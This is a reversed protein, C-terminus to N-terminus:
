FNRAIEDLVAEFEKEVEGSKADLAPSLAERMQKAGYDPRKGTTRGISQEVSVGRQRVVTRYGAASRADVDAFRDRADVRVIDGARRLADRTGKKLQKTSKDTARILERLGKVRLAQAV